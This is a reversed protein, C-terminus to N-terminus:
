FTRHRMATNQNCLGLWQSSAQALQTFDGLKLCIRPNTGWSTCAYSHSKCRFHSRVKATMLEVSYISEEIHHCIMEKTGDMGAGDKFSITM